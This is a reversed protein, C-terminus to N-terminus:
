EYHPNANAEEFKKLQANTMKDIIQQAANPAVAKYQTLTRYGNMRAESSADKCARKVADDVDKLLTDNIQLKMKEQSLRKDASASNIEDFIVGSAYRVAGALNSSVNDSSSSGEMPGCVYTRSLKVWRGEGLLTIIWDCLGTKFLKGQNVLVYGKRDCKESLLIMQGMKEMLMKRKGPENNCNASIITNVLDVPEINSRYSYPFWHTQRDTAKPTYTTIGDVLCYGNSGCVVSWHMLDIDDWTWWAIREDGKLFAIIKRIETHNRVASRISTLRDLLAPNNFAALVDLQHNWFTELADSLKNIVAQEDSTNTIEYKQNVSGNWILWVERKPNWLLYDKPCVDYILQACSKAYDM